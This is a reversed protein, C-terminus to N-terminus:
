KFVIDSDDNVDYDGLLDEAPKDSKSSEGSEAVFAVPSSVPTDVAKKPTNSASKVNGAAAAKAAKQMKEKEVIAEEKKKKVMKLRTFDERELEDLESDIYKIITNINPIVVNELANVRRSTAKLAEDMANFSTQLSAIKILAAVYEAFTERCKDIQKRGGSLGYNEGPEAGTDIQNFVPLRVGVVNDTRATVRISATMNGELLKNRFNGAAYEAQTLSFYSKSSVSSMGIKTQYIQKCIANFRSKLADAKQKLLEYGKSAGKHKDKFLGLQM